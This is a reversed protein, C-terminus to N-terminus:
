ETSRSGCERWVQGFLAAFVLTTYFAVPAALIPMLWCLCITYYLLMWLVYLLGMMGFLLIWAALYEWRREKLVAWWRRVQFAAGLRNEAVFHAMAAPLPIAGLFLLLSGLFLSIFFLAMTVMVLAMTPERNALLPIFFSAFYLGMGGFYVLTGPLLYVLGVAFARLGDVFLRGWDQWPPLSPEEGGIVRRMVEVAYGYVFLVPLIPVVWGAFILASGIIFRNVWDPEQFPFRFLHKLEVLTNRSM